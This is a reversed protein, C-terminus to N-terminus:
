DDGIVRVRAEYSYDIPIHFRTLDLDRSGANAIVPAFRLETNASSASAPDNPDPKPFAELAM